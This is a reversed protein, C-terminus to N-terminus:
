GRASETRASQTPQKNSERHKPEELYRGGYYIVGSLVAVEVFALAVNGYQEFYFTLLNATTLAFLLGYYGLELGRRENARLMLASALLLVLGGVADLALGITFWQVAHGSRAPGETIVTRAVSEIGPAVIGLLMVAPQALAAIGSMALGIALVIKLRRKGLWREELKRLWDAVRELIGPKQFPPEHVNDNYYDLLAQGFKALDPHSDSDVTHGLQDKLAAEKEEDLDHDLMEQLTDLASYLDIRPDPSPPQRVRLYILVMVLFLGYIIPAALPSFYDNNQTIFKGVEDIFLGVGVGSLIASLINVWRNALIVPLLAAIFLLLGGWLVHSIHLEGQGVKPFGTLKLWLRVLVVSLAFTVLTLVLYYRANERKVPARTRYDFVNM